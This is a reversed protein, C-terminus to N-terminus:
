SNSAALKESGGGDGDGRRRENRGAGQAPVSTGRRRLADDDADDAPTHHAGAVGFSQHRLFIALYDGRAIQVLTRQLLGHVGDVLIVAVSIAFRIVIKALHKRARVDVGHHKRHGIVPVSQKGHRRRIRLFVDIAFLREGAGDRFLLGDHAGHLLVFADPLGTRPLARNSVEVLASLDNAVTQDAFDRADFDTQGAAMDIEFLGRVLHLDARRRGFQIIIKPDARRLHHRVDFAAKVHVPAPIVVGAAALEEIPDAMVAVDRMPPQVEVTGAREFDFALTFERGFVGNPVGRGLIADFQLIGLVDRHGDRAAM